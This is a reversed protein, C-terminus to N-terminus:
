RGPRTSWPRAILELAHEDDRHVVVIALDPDETAILEAAEAVSVAYPAVEHGLGELVRASSACRGRDEDAILVRLQRESGTNSVTPVM